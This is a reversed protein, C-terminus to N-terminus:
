VGWFYIFLELRVEDTLTNTIKFISITFMPANGLLSFHYLHFYFKNDTKMELSLMTSYELRRGGVVNFADLVEFLYMYLIKSFELSNVINFKTKFTKLLELEGWASVKWPRSSKMQICCGGVTKRRFMIVACFWPSWSFLGSPIGQFYAKYMRMIWIMDM